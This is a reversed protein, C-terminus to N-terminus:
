ESIETTAELTGWMFPPPEKQELPHSFVGSKEMDPERNQRLQQEKKFSAEFDACRALKTGTCFELLGPRGLAWGPTFDKLIQHIRKQKVYLGMIEEPNLNRKLIVESQLTECHVDAYAKAGQAWLLEAAPQNVIYFMDGFQGYKLWSEDTIVIPTDKNNLNRRREDAFLRPLNWTFPSLRFYDPRSRIYLDIRRNSCEKLWQQSMNFAEQMDQTQYFLAPPLANPCKSGFLANGVVVDQAQYTKVLTPKLHNKIEELDQLTADLNTHRDWATADTLSVYWIQHVQANSHKELAHIINKSIGKYVTPEPMSRLSGAILLMIQTKSPDIKPSCDASRGDTARMPGGTSVPIGEITFMVVFCAFSVILFLM